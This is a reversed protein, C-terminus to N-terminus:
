KPIVRRSNYLAHLIHSCRCTKNPITLSHHADTLSISIPGAPTADGAGDLAPDVTSSRPGNAVRNVSSSRSRLASAEVGPVNLTITLVSENWFQVSCDAFSPSLLLPPSGMSRRPDTAADRALLKPRSEIISATARGCSGFMTMKGLNSSKLRREVFSNFDGVEGVLLTRSVMLSSSSSGNIGRRLGSVVVKRCKLSTTQFCSTGGSCSGPELM